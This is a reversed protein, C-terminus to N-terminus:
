PSRAPAAAKASPRECPGGTQRSPQGIRCRDDRRRRRNGVRDFGIAIPPHGLFKATAAQAHVALPQPAQHPLVAQNARHAAAAGWLGIGLGLAEHLRQLDFCDIPNGAFGEGFEGGVNWSGDILHM